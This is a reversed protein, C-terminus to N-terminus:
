LYVGESRIIRLCDSIGLIGTSKVEAIQVSSQM